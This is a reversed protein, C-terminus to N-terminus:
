ISGIKCFLKFSVFFSQMNLCKQNEKIDPWEIEDM